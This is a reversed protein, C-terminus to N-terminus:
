QKKVLVKKFSKSIKPTKHTPHIWLTPKISYLKYLRRTILMFDIFSKLERKTNRKYANLWKSEMVNCRRCLCCLIRGTEHSHHVHCNKPENILDFKHNCLYCKNKQKIVLKERITKLENTKIKKIAM